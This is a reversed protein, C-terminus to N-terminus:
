SWKKDKYESAFWIKNNRLCEDYVAQQGFAKVLSKITNTTEM